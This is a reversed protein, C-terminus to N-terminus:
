LPSTAYSGHYLSLYENYENIARPDSGVICSIISYDDNILIFLSLTVIILSSLVVISHLESIILFPSLISNKISKMKSM